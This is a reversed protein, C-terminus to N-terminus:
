CVQTLLFCRNREILMVFFRRGSSGAHLHFVLFRKRLGRSYFFFFFFINKDCKIQMSIRNQRLPRSEIQQMHNVALQLLLKNTQSQPKRLLGSTPTWILGSSPLRLTQTQAAPWPHVPHQYVLFGPFRSEKLFFFLFFCSEGLQGQRKLVGWGDKESQVEQGKM